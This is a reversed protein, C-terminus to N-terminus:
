NIRPLIDKLKGNLSLVCLKADDQEKYCNLYAEDSDKYIIVFCRLNNKNFKILISKDPTMEFIVKSAGVLNQLAEYIVYDEPKKVTSEEIEKDDKTLEIFESLTLIKDFKVSYETIELVGKKGIGYYREFIGRVHLPEEAGDNLYKVVTDKFLRSGDNKVGWSPYKDEIRRM